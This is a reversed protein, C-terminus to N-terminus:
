CGAAEWGAKAAEMAQKCADAAAQKTAENKAMDQWAKAGQVFADKAQKGADGMKDYCKMARDWLQDCEAIGTKMEGGGDGAAPDEAKKAEAKKEEAKKEEAKKEDGKKEAKKDDQKADGGCAPVAFTLATFAAVLLTNQIKM